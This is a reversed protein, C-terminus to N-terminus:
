LSYILNSLIKEIEKYNIYPIRLLNINNIRCFNNKINDKEIQSQLSKEGGFYEIPIFHQEGDYEICINYKELFFDFVLHRNSSSRCNDFRKQYYFSINNKNLFNIIKEEGKSSKCLNCGQGSIHDNPRILFPGHLDCIVEIKTHSNIYKANSYKYKGDHITNSESIFENLNKVKFFGCRRCGQKQSIHLNPKIFFSGHIKCIIEVKHKNGTYRVKSYDYRDGHIKIFDNKWNKNLNKISMNLKGCKQCGRGSLIWNPKSEFIGHHKCIIKVKTKNNYYDVLSYDYKKPHILESKQIFRERNSRESM